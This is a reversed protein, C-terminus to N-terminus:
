GSVLSYVVGVFAAALGLFGGAAGVRLLPRARANWRRSAPTASEDPGTCLLGLFRFVGGLLLLTYGLLAFLGGLDLGVEGPGPRVYSGRSTRRMGVPRGVTAADRGPAHLTVSRDVLSGDTATFTGTCVDEAKRNRLLETACHRSVYTGPTGAVGLAYPLARLPFQAAWVGGGLVGLGVAVAMVALAIRARRQTREQTM